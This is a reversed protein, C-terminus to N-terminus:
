EAQQLRPLFHLIHRIAQIWQLGLQMGVYLITCFAVAQKQTGKINARERQLAAGVKHWLVMRTPGRARMPLKELPEPAPFPFQSAKKM